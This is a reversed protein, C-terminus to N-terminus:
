RLIVTAPSSVLISFAGTANASYTTAVLTYNRPQLSISFFFQHNGGSDDDYILPNTSPNTANFYPSYLCGYMDIQSFSKFQYSGNISVTLEMLHAVLVHLLLFSFLLLFPHFSLSFSFSLIFPFLFPSFSSGERSEFWAGGAIRATIM